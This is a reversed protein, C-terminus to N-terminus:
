VVKAVRIKLAAKTLAKVSEVTPSTSRNPQEVLMLKVALCVNEVKVEVLTKDAIERSVSYRPLLSVGLGARVCEKIGEVNSIHLAAKLRPCGAKGLMDIIMNTYGSFPHNELGMIFPTSALRDSTIPTRFLREHKSSAIFCLPIDTIPHVMLDTPSKDTLVLGFDTEGHRVSEYVENKYLSYIKITLKPRKEFLETTILPLLYTAISVTAGIRVEGASGAKLEALIRDLEDARHSFDEAFRLFINGSETLQLSSGSRDLLEVGARDELLAIQASVASQSKHLAKAAKTFSRERCVQIFTLLNDLSFDM